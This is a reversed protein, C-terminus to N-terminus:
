LRRWAGIRRGGSLSAVWLYDGSIVITLCLNSCITAKTRYSIRSDVYKEYYTELGGLYGARHADCILTPKQIPLHCLWILSMPTSLTACAPRWNTVRNDFTRKLGRQQASELARSLPSSLFTECQACHWPQWLQWVTPQRDPM